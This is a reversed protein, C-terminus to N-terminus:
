KKEVDALAERIKGSLEKMSFPKQIFHVDAELIGSKAIVDATYGSMFLQKMGPYLEHLRGALDRGNMEPMVVDTVLLDIAGAHQTALILSDGPAAAPIVRYGLEELMSTAMELNAPEDEVLLITESGRMTPEPILSKQSREDEGKHTPLYIKFAAGSGLKSHVHIFGNNQKVIGYVTAMGLGTGKGMEKTTFFPDFIKEMTERSMGCGNDSISLFVYEGPSFDPNHSCFDEDFAIHGTEIVVKGAGSIADRANVCLNALIQDLQSPDLRIPCPSPFPRWALDIDEGILRRLMKLMGSLSENLDLVRPSITQKRAFALLQRTLDASREAAKRIEQLHAYPRGVPDVQRLALEARGIIVGLMNNFDHAVGGALRGVSEMKQAQRLQEALKEKEQNAYWRETIDEIIAIGGRISGDSAAIPAFFARLPTKKGSVVSQYEDELFRRRGILSDRIADVIHPYPVDLMKYGIVVDRSAGMFKLYNENCDVIIGQHDYYLLGLPSNEFILRYREESERLERTRKEIIKQAALIAREHRARTCMEVLYEPEFPKRFYAAAGQKMWSLALGPKPDATIMVATCAPRTRHIVDLLADGPGDPLHCDIIVVDYATAALAEVAEQSTLAADSRYGRADFAKKLMNVISKSGDVILARLTSPMKRGALIAEIREMFRKADVPASLFGEAGLEAAIRSPEDGSFTASVVLIPISNLAAYEPSRLLRCFHWGDIGPMHLDTIILSPLLASNDATGEAHSAMAFLANEANTFTIPELSAKKTLIALLALQTPDDNVVVAFPGEPFQKNDHM